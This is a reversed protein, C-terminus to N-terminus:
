PGASRTPGSRPRCRGCSWRWRSRRGSRLSPAAGPRGARCPWPRARGGGRRHGGGLLSPGAPGAAAPGEGNWGSPKWRRTRRCGRRRWGCSGVDRSLGRDGAGDVIGVADEDSGDAPGFQEGADPIAWSGDLISPDSEEPWYLRMMLLFKDKPAPLWNSEKDAGPSEHQILLDVSGDSNAKLPQRESISYRNIPNEVFFYNADYMTLSWFGEGAAVPGKQLTLVYKESGLYDRGLLGGPQKLSTPYVADQPRNAGLGIATVLARQLYDTGYLGTKLTFGWGNVNKMDGDSDKFHLMIRDYGLQPIRKAFDADLKSADFDQGPVIGIAALKEIMPADAEAPPNAKM